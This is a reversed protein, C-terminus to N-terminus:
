FSILHCVAFCNYFICVHSFIHLLISDIDAGLSEFLVVNLLIDCGEDFLFKILFVVGSPMTNYSAVKTGVYSMFCFMEDVEIESM